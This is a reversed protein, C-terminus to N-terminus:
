ESLNDSTELLRKSVRAQVDIYYKTEETNLDDDQIKDFKDAFDAYKKMYDAYETLMSVTDDSNNYKEMFDCYDNMFTEYSDIAEKIEPRIGESDAKSAVGSEEPTESKVESVVSSSETPESEVVSSSPTESKEESPADLIITMVKKKEDYTLSLRYGDSNKADYSTDYNSYDVDFGSNKCENVYNTFDDKSFKAVNIWLSKESESILEGKMSSPKPILNAIESSPWQIDGYNKKNPDHVIFYVVALVIVALVIWRKKFKKNKM